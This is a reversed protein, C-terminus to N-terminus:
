SKNRLIKKFKYFLTKANRGDQALAYSKQENKQTYYKADVQVWTRSNGIFLIKNQKKHKIHWDAQFLYQNNKTNNYIILKIIFAIVIKIFTFLFIFASLRKM